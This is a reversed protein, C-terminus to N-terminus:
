PNKGKIVKNGEEKSTIGFYKGFDNIFESAMKSGAIKATELVGTGFGEAFSEGIKAQKQEYDTVGSPQSGIMKQLDTTTGAFKSFLNPNNKFAEALKESDAANLGTADMVGLKFGESSAGGYQQSLLGLKSGLFGETSLGGQQAKLLDFYSANRYQPLSTLASFNMAQSYDGSPNILSQNVTSLREGLREDGFAGGLKSFSTVIGQAIGSNPNSMMQSQERIVATQAEILSPLKSYDDGKIVGQRKLAAIMNATNQASGVGTMKSLKEQELMQSGELGFAKQMAYSQFVANGVGRSSGRAKAYQMALTNAENTDLGLGINSGISDIGTSARLGARSLARSKQEQEERDKAAQVAGGLRDSILGPVVSYLQGAFKTDDQAGALSSGFSGIAGLTGKVVQKIAEFKLLDGLISPRKEEQQQVTFGKKIEEVLTKIENVANKDQLSGERIDIVDQTYRKQAGETSMGGAVREQKLKQADLLNQEKQLRILREREKIELQLGKLLVNANDKSIKAFKEDDLGLEKRKAKIQDFLKLLTSGEGSFVVKKENAM